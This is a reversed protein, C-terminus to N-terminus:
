GPWGPGWMGHKIAAVAPEILDKALELARVPTLEVAVEAGDSYLTLVIPQGEGAWSVVVHQKTAKTVPQSPRRKAKM